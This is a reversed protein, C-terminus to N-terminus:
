LSPWPIFHTMGQSCSCIRRPPESGCRRPPPPPGGRRYSCAVPLTALHAGLFPRSLGEESTGPRLQGHDAGPLDAVVPLCPGGVPRLLQARPPGLHVPRPRPVARALFGSLSRLRWPPCLARSNAHLLLPLPLQRPGLQGRAERDDHGLEDEAWRARGYCGEALGLHLAVAACHLPPAGVPHQHRVQGEGLLGHLLLVALGHAPLARM